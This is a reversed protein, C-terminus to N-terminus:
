FPVGPYAKSKHSNNRLPTRLRENVPRLLIIINMKNQSWIKFKREIVIYTIDFCTVVEGVQPSQDSEVEAITQKNYSDIFFIM